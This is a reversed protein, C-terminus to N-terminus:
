CVHMPPMYTIKYTFGKKTQGAEKQENEDIKPQGNVSNNKNCPPQGDKKSQM